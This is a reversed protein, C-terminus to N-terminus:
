KFFIIAEFGKVVGAEMRIEFVRLTYFLKFGQNMKKYWKTNKILSPLDKSYHPKERVHPDLSKVDQVMMKHYLTKFNIMM